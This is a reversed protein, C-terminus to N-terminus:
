TGFTTFQGVRGHGPPRQHVCPIPHTSSCPRGSTPRGSRFTTVPHLRTFPFRSVHHPCYPGMDVVPPTSDPTPPTEATVVSSLRDPRPFLYVVPGAGSVSVSRVPRRFVFPRSQQLPVQSSRPTSSTIRRGVTEPGGLSKQRHRLKKKSSRRLVESETPVGDDGLVLHLREM